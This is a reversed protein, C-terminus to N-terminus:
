KLPIGMGRLDILEKKCSSCDAPSFGMLKQYSKALLKKFDSKMPYYDFVKSNQHSIAIGVPKGDRVLPLLIKKDSTQNVIVKVEEKMGTPTKMNSHM